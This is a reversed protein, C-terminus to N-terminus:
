FALGNVCGIYTSAFHAMRACCTRNLVCRRHLAPNAHVDQIASEADPDVPENNRRGVKSDPRAPSGDIADRLTRKDRPCLESTLSKSSIEDM